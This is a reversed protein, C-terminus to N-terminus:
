SVHFMGWVMVCCTLTTLNFVFCFLEFLTVQPLIYVFIGNHHGDKTIFKVVDPVLQIGWVSPVGTLSKKSFRFYSPESRIHVKLCSAVGQIHAM